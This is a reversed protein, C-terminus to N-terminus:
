TALGSVDNGTLFYYITIYHTRSYDDNGAPFYHNVVYRTRTIM